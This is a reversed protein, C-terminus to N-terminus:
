WMATSRGVAAAFFLGSALTVLPPWKSAAEQVGCCFSPMSVFTCCDPVACPTPVARRSQKCMHNCTSAMGGGGPGWRIALIIHSSM